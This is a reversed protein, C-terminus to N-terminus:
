RNECNFTYKSKRCSECSLFLENCDSPNIHHNCTEAENPHDHVLGCECQYITWEGDREGIEIPKIL